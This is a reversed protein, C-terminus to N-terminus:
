GGIEEIIQTAWDQIDLFTEGVIPDQGAQYGFFAANQIKEAMGVVGDLILRVKTLEALVEGEAISMAEDLVHKGM